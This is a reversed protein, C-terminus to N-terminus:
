RAPERRGPLRGHPAWEGLLKALAQAEQDSAGQREAQVEADTQERNPEESSPM